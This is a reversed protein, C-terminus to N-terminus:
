LAPLLCLPLPRAALPASPPRVSPDGLGHLIPINILLEFKSHFRPNSNLVLEPSLLHKFACICMYMM